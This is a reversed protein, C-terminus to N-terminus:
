VKQSGEDMKGMELGRSQYGGLWERYGHTQNKKPTKKNTQKNTQKSEVFLHSLIQRERDSM